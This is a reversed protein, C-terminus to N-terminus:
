HCGGRMDEVMAGNSTGNLYLHSWRKKTKNLEMLQNSTGKLYLHCGGM